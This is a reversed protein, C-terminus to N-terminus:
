LATWDAEWAAPSTKNVIPNKSVAIWKAKGPASRCSHFPASTAGEGWFPPTGGGWTLGLACPRQGWHPVGMFPLAGSTSAMHSLQTWPLGLHRAPKVTVLVKCHVILGM